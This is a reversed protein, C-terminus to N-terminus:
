VPAIRSPTSHLKVGGVVVEASQLRVIFNLVPKPTLISSNNSSDVILVVTTVTGENASGSEFM